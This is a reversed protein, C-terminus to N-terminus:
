LFGCSIRSLCCFSASWGYLRHCYYATVKGERKYHPLMFTLLNTLKELFKKTENWKLVYSYVEEDLGTQPRMHEIYFPNPLFRVDFVLDADIPIGHKFGFSM